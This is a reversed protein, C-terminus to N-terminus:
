SRKYTKTFYSANLPGTIEDLSALRQCIRVAFHFHDITNILISQTYEKLTDLAVHQWYYIKTVLPVTQWELQVWLTLLLIPFDRAPFDRIKTKPLDAKKSQQADWPVGFNHLLTNGDQSLSFVFWHKSSSDLSCNLNNTIIAYRLWCHLGNYM